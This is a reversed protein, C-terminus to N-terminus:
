VHHKNHLRHWKQVGEAKGFILYLFIKELDHLYGYFTNKGFLIRETILFAKKHKITYMIPEIRSTKFGEFAALIVLLIIPLVYLVFLVVAFTIFSSFLMSLFDAQSIM